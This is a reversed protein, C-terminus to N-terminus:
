KGDPSRVLEREVLECLVHYAAVHVEQIRPSQDNEAMLLVDALDRCKGGGEGTFAITRMGQKRAQKLGEVVNASNGSTSLAIAVDGVRGLAEVQRAFVQDFGYDNGVATLVSTDTTLAVARYAPRELFFRGVLEGAIHQADAASGGNGFILVTGGQRCTDVVMEVAEALGTANEEAFRDILRSTQALRDRIDELM